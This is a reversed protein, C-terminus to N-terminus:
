KKIRKIHLFISLFLFAISLSYFILFSLLSYNKCTFITLSVDGQETLFLSVTQLFSILIFIVYDIVIITKKRNILYLVVKTLLPLIYVIGAVFAENGNAESGTSDELYYIKNERFVALGKSKAFFFSSLILGTLVFVYLYFLIGFENRKM